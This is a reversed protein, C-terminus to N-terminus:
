YEADPRSDDTAAPAPNTFTRVPVWGERGEDNRLWHWGSEDDRVVVELVEGASTALETTDYPQLVTAAGADASLYRTPIWGGGGAATVFSFAPWEGDGEGVTVEDGPRLRLPTRDPSRHAILARVREM